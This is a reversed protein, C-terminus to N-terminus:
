LYLVLMISAITQSSLKEKAAERILENDSTLDGLVDFAEDLSSQVSYLNGVLGFHRSFRYGLGVKLNAGLNTNFRDGLDEQRYIHLKNVGMQAQLMFDWLRIQLGLDYLNIMAPRYVGMTYYEGDFSSTFYETVAPPMIVSDLSWYMVGWFRYGLHLTKFSNEFFDSESEDNADAEDPQVFSPAFGFGLELEAFVPASIVAILLLIAAARKDM